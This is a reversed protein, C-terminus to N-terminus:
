WKVAAGNMCNAGNQHGRVAGDTHYASNDAKGSGSMDNSSSFERLRVDREQLLAMYLNVVDDNLWGKQEMCVLNKRRM